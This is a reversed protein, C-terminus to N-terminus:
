RFVRDIQYDCVRWVKFHLGLAPIVLPLTVIIVQLPQVLTQRLESPYQLGGSTKVQETPMTQCRIDLDHQTFTEVHKVMDDPRLRGSAPVPAPLFAQPCIERCCLVYQKSFMVQPWIPWFIIAIHCLPALKFLM